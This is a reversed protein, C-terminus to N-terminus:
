FKQRGQFLKRGGVSSIQYFTLHFDIFVRISMMRAIKENEEKALSLERATVM